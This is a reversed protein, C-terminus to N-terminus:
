WRQRIDQLLRHMREPMFSPCLACIWRHSEVHLHYNGNIKKMRWGKIRSKWYWLRCYGDKDMHVCAEGEGRRFRRRLSMELWGKVEELEALRSSVEELTKAYGELRQVREELRSIRDELRQPPEKQGKAVAIADIWKLGYKEKIEKAKAYLEPHRKKLLYAMQAGSTPM